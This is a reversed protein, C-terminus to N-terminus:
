EKIKREWPTYGTKRAVQLDESVRRSIETFREESLMEGFLVKKWGPQILYINFAIRDGQWWKAGDGKDDWYYYDDGSFSVWNHNKDEQAIYQVGIGPADKVEGDLYTYISDSYYICWKM